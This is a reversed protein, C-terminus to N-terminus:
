QLEERARLEPDPRRDVAAEVVVEGQGPRQRRVVQRGDLRPHRSRDGGIVREDSALEIRGLPPREEDLAILGELDLDEVVEGRLGGRGALRHGRCREVLVPREDVQALSGM